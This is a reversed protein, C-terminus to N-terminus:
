MKSILIFFVNLSVGQRGSPFEYTITYAGDKEYGKLRTYASFSVKMRGDPQDGRMRSFPKRCFPCNQVKKFCERCLSGDCCTLSHPSKNEELCIGCKERSREDKRSGSGLFYLCGNVSTSNCSYPGLDWSICKFM